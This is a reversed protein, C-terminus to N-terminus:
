STKSVYMGYTPIMCVKTSVINNKEHTLDVHLLYFIMFGTWGNGVKGKGLVVDEIDLSFTTDHLAM